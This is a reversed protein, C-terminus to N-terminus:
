TKKPGFLRGCYQCAHLRASNFHQCADCYRVDKESNRGPSMQGDEVGDEADIARMRRVFDDQSCIGKDALVRQFTELLLLMRSVDRRLHTVETELNKAKQGGSLVRYELEHAREELDNIDSRQNWESDFMYNFLSM